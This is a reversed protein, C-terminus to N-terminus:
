VGYRAKIYKSLAKNINRYAQAQEINFTDMIVGIYNSPRSIYAYNLIKQEDRSLKELARSILIYDKENEAIQSQLKDKLVIADNYKDEIKSGGGQVPTSSFSYASGELRTNISEVQEQMSKVSAQLSNFRRLDYIAVQKWFEIIIM